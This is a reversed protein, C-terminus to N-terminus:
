VWCVAGSTDTILAGSTHHATAYVPNVASTLFLNIDNSVPGAVGLNLHQVGSDYSYAVAGYARNGLRQEIIQRDGLLPWFGSEFDDNHDSSVSYGAISLDATVTYPGFPDDYDVSQAVPFKTLTGDVEIGYYGSQDYEVAARVLWWPRAPLVPQIATDTGDFLSGTDHTYVYDEVKHSVSKVLAFTDNHLTAGVAREVHYTNKGSQKSIAADFDVPISLLPGPFPGTIATTSHEYLWYIPTSTASSSENLATGSDMLTLSLALTAGTGSLTLLWIRSLRRWKLLPIYPAIEYAVLAVQRGTSDVDDIRLDNDAPLTLSVTASHNVTTGPIEGFNVVSVTLVGSAESATALWPAGAGDIWIWNMEGLNKGYLIKNKGIAVGYNIWTMGDAADATDTTVAAQGPIAIKYNEGNDPATTSRTTSNPLELVGGRFLGHWPDGFREITDLDFSEGAAM